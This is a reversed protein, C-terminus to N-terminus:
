NTITTQAEIVKAAERVADEEGAPADANLQLVVLSGDKEPIVSTLQAIYRKEGEDERLYSGRFVIADYGSFTTKRVEGDQTYGPLNQLMGPAYEFIKDESVDGALRSIIATMFAPDDPDKSKDYVIAGYAWEPKQAGAPRWDPPMPFQFTPPGPDGQTIATEIIKKEAVYDAITKKLGDEQGPGAPVSTGAAATSASTEAKTEPASETTTAGCGALAVGVACASLIAFPTRMPTRM